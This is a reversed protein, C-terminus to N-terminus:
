AKDNDEDQKKYNEIIAQIRSHRFHDKPWRNVYEGEHTVGISWGDYVGQIEILYAFDKSEM